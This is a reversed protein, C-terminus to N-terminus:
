SILLLNEKFDGPLKKHIFHFIDKIQEEKMANNFAKNIYNKINFIHNNKIQEQINVITSLINIKKLGTKDILNDIFTDINLDLNEAEINYIDDISEGPLESIKKLLKKEVEKFKNKLTDKVKQISSKKSDALINIYYINNFYKQTKTEKHKSITIYKLEELKKITRNITERTVNLKNAIYEQSPYCTHKKDSYKVLLDLVAKLTPKLKLNLKDYYNDKTIM